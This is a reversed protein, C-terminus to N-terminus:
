GCTAPCSSNSAKALPHDKRVKKRARFFLSFSVTLSTNNSSAPLNKYPIGKFKSAMEIMEVAQQVMFFESEKAPSEGKADVVPIYRNRQFSWRIPLIKM